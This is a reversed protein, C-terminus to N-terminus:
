VGVLAQKKADSFLEYWDQETPVSDFKEQSGLAIRLLEIFLNYM